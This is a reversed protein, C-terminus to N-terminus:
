LLVDMFVAITRMARTIARVIRRKMQKATAPV